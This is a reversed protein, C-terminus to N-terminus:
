PPGPAVRKSGICRDMQEGRVLVRGDSLYESIAQFREGGLRTM